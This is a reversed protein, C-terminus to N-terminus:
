CHQRRFAEYEVPAPNARESCDNREPDAAAAAELRGKNFLRDYLLMLRPM